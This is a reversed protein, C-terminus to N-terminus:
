KSIKVKRKPKNEIISNLALKEKTVEKELNFIIDPLNINTTKIKQYIKSNSLFDNITKEFSKDHDETLTKLNESKTIKEQWKKLTNLKHEETKYELTRLFLADDVSIKESPIASLKEKYEILSKDYVHHPINNPNEIITKIGSLTSKNYM